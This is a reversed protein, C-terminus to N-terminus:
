EADGSGEMDNTKLRTNIVESFVVNGRHVVAYKDPRRITSM